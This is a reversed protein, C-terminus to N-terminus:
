EVTLLISGQYLDADTPIGALVGNHRDIAIGTGVLYASHHQTINDNRHHPINEQEM